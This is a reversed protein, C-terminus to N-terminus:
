ALRARLVALVDTPRRTVQTWSFREVGYGAAGLVADRRRDREFATATLHAARGDLEAVLKAPAM